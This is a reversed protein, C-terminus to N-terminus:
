LNATATEVGAAPVEALCECYCQAMCKKQMHGDPAVANVAGRQLALSLTHLSISGTAGVRQKGGPFAM